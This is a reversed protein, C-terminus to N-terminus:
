FDELVERWNAPLLGKAVLKGQMGRHRFDMRLGHCKPCLWRLNVIHNSGQKGSQIHDVHGKTIPVAEKCRQCLGQDRDFVKRRTEKWQENPQRKRPM